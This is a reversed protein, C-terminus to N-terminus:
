QTSGLWYQWKALILLVSHGCVASCRGTVSCLLHEVEVVQPETQGLVFGMPVNQFWWVIGLVKVARKREQYGPNMNVIAMWSM